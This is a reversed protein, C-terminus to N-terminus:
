IRSEFRAKIVEAFPKQEIKSEVWALIDFVQTFFAKTQPQQSLDEFEAKLSAYAERLERKSPAEVAQRIFAITLREVEQLQGRKKLFRYTSRILSELLEYNGLEFHVILNLIRAASQLYQREVTSNLDLWENLYQLADDYAGAGFSIYFYFHYFSSRRFLAQDFQQVEKLHANLAHYGEKFDGTTICLSFKNQYFQRHIKLEDDQNLPRVKRLKELMRKLEDYKGLRGCAVILNSIASIYESADEKLYHPKHEMLKILEKSYEYFLQINGQAYQFVTLTRYYLIRAQHSDALEPEKLLPTDIIKHLEGAAEGNRSPGKRIRVLLRFFTNRYAAITQLQQQLRQEETEIRQLERDLFDIDSRTYAIQKEWELIELLAQFQEYKEALKRAKQLQEQCDQFLSRRFLVRVSLLHHKLRYAVSTKEDYSQLSKLLMEYLYAKLESYKRSQIEATGYIRLKLAEDDFEPQQEIADFLLLYKNDKGMQGGAAVKFYRKEPGSLSHILRYLKNSPVKPM